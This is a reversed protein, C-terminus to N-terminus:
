KNWLKRTTHEWPIMRELGKGASDLLQESSTNTNVPWSLIYKSIVPYCILEHQAKCTHPSYPNAFPARSSEALLFHGWMKLGTKLINKSVHKIQECCIPQMTSTNRSQKPFCLFVKKLPYKVCIIYVCLRHVSGVITFIKLSLQLHFFQFSM